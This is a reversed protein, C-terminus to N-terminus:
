FSSCIHDESSRDCRQLSRLYTAMPVYRYPASDRLVSQDQFVTALSQCLLSNLLLKQENSNLYKLISVYDPLDSKAYENEAIRRDLADAVAPPEEVYFTDLLNGDATSKFPLETGLCQVSNDSFRLDIQLDALMDRGIIM